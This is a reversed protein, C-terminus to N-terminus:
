PAIRACLVRLSMNLAAAKAYKELVFLAQRLCIVDEISDAVKGRTTIFYRVAHNNLQVVVAGIASVEQDRRHVIEVLATRSVSGKSFILVRRRLHVLKRRLELSEGVLDPNEKM